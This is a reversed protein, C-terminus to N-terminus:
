QVVCDVLGLSGLVKGACKGRVTVTQGFELKSVADKQDRAFDCLINPKQLADMLYVAPIKADIIGIKGTVIVIKGQYLKNADAENSDYAKYLDEASITIGTGEREVRKSEMAKRFSSCGLVLGLWLGFTLVLTVSTKPIRM